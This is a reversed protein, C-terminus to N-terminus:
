DAFDRKFYSKAWSCGLLVELVPASGRPAEMVKWTFGVGCSHKKTWALVLEVVDRDFSKGFWVKNM